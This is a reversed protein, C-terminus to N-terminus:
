FYSSFVFAFWFFAALLFLFSILGKMRGAVKQMYMAEQFYFIAPILGVTKKHDKM